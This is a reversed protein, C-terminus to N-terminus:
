LADCKVGQSRSGEGRLRVKAAAGEPRITILVTHGALVPPVVVAREAGLSQGDADVSQSYLRCPLTKGKLLRMSCTLGSIPECHRISITSALAGTVEIAPVLGSDQSAAQLVNVSGAVMTFASAVAIASLVMRPVNM